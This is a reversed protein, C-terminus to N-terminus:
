MLGEQREEASLQPQVDPYESLFRRTLAVREETTFPKRWLPTQRDRELLERVEDELSRNNLRARSQYIAITEDSVDPIVLKGM